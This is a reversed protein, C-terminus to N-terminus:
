SRPQRPSRRSNLAVPKVPRTQMGESRRSWATKEVLVVHAEFVGGKTPARLMFIKKGAILDARTATVVPANEPVTVVM